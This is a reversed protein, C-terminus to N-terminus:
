QVGHVFRCHFRCAKTTHFREECMGCKFNAGDETSPVPETPLVYEVDQSSANGPEIKFIVTNTPTDDTRHADEITEGSPYLTYEIKAKAQTKTALSRKRRQEFKLAVNFEAHATIWTNHFEYALIVKKICIRCIQKPYDDDEELSSLSAPLCATLIELLTVKKDRVTVEEEFINHAELCESGCTRCCSEFIEM